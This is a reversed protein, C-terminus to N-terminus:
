GMALTVTKLEEPLMEDIPPIGEPRARMEDTMKEGDKGNVTVSNDNDGAAGPAQNSSCGAAFLLTVVILVALLFLYLNKFKCRNCNNNKIM